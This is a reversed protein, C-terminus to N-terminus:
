DVGPAQRAFDERKWPHNATNVDNTESRPAHAEAIKTELAIVRRAKEAAGPVGALELLKTVHEQYRARHAAMAPAKDLYYSRDPMGLGGQLLFPVTRSPDNLDQDIWLGLFNHTDVRAVNLDDVDARMQQGLAGSLARKDKITAIRALIPALPQAGLSDLRAEDLFSAFFAGAKTAAESQEAASLRGAAADELIAVSANDAEIVLDGFGGVFPRDPPIVASKQWTGNAYGYFDNGPRVSRDMTALDVGRLASPAEAPGPVTSAAPAAVPVASMSVTADGGGCAAAVAVLLALATVSVVRPPM